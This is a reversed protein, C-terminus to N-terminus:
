PDRSLDRFIVPLPALEQNARRVPRRERVTRLPKGPLWWNADGFLVVIAPVLLTRVGFTDIIIGLALGFGIEVITDGNSAGLASVALIAFTGALVLGASTITTGTIEVAKAVAVRVPVRGVDERIRTMLLINYDEGLALLFIFMLLPLIFSLGSQGMIKEFIIVSLGLTALYSLVISLILYIPAVISRVVLALLVAIVGIAIPIVTRLDNDSIQGVDYSSAEQGIVGSGSANLATAVSAVAARIAPVARTASSTTPAGAALVVAYAITDGDATIYQASARYAQYTSAGGPVQEGAPVTAPIASPPGFESHLRGYDAPTIAVGSPDLPGSVSTFLSDAALLRHGTELVATDRWASQELRFVILTASLSSQPFHRMILANGLASDSGAPPVVTASLSGATYGASAAALVGFGIVGVVLTAAPRRVVRAAVEGWGRGAGDRRASARAPWFVVGGLVALIAPVLTLGALLMLGVGVLLPIALTSYLSFTAALLSLVGGIVTGASFVIPEGVRAVANIVAARPCPDARMEERFRFILFLSYDTGAGIVLVIQLVSAISSIQLGRLSIEATLRGAIQVVLLASGVAVLPAIISRFVIALLVIIFLLSLDQVRGSITGSSANADVRAAVAGALHGDLGSPFRVSAMATRLNKVLSSEGETVRGAVSTLHALVKLQVAEGDSSVGAEQVKFVHPVHGLQQTVDRVILYDTSTLMGAPRAIVAIVTVSGSNVLPGGLRVAQESPASAPLFATDDSQTVGSLSPLFGTGVALALWM